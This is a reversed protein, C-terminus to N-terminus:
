EGPIHPNGFAEKRIDDPLDSFPISKMITLGPKDKDQYSITLEGANSEFVEANKYTIGSLTTIDRSYLAVPLFAFLFLALYLKM